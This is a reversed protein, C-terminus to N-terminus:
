LGAQELLKAGSLKFAKAIKLLGGLTINKEGREVHGIYTRHFGVQEAFQEQSYGLRNREQRVVEGLKNQPTRRKKMRVFYGLHHSNISLSNIAIIFVIFLM